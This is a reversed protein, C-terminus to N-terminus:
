SPALSIWFSTTARAMKPLSAVPYAGAQERFFALEGEVHLRHADGCAGRQDVDQRASAARRVATDNGANGPVGDASVPTPARILRHASSTRQHTQKNPQEQRHKAVFPNRADVPLCETLYPWASRLKQRNLWSHALVCVRGSLARTDVWRPKLWLESAM